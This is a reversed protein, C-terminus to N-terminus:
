LLEQSLLGMLGNGYREAFNGSLDKIQAFNGSLDKIQETEGGQGSRGWRRQQCRWQGLSGFGTM